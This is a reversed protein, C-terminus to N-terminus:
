KIYNLAEFIAEELTEFYVQHILLGTVKSYISWIWTAKGKEICNCSEILKINHEDSLWRLVESYLPAHLFRYEVECDHLEFDGNMKYRAIVPYNFGRKAVEIALEESVFSKKITDLNNTNM